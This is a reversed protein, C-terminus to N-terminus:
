HKIQSPHAVGLQLKVNVSSLEACLYRLIRPVAVLHIHEDTRCLACHRRTYHHYDRERLMLQRMESDVRRLMALSSKLKTVSVISQCKGCM